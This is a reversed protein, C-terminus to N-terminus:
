CRMTCQEPRRSTVPKFSVDQPALTLASAALIGGTGHKDFAFQFGSLFEAQRQWMGRQESEMMLKRRTASRLGAVFGRSIADDWLSFATPWQSSRLCASVLSYYTIENLEVGNADADKVVDLARSWHSAKEFASILASFSVVDPQVQSSSMETLLALALPWRTECASIATNYSTRNPQLGVDQLAELLQIAAQWQLSRECASLAANFGVVDATQALSWEALLNIARQWQSGEALASITANCCMLDAEIQLSQELAALAQTWRQAKAFASISSTYAISDPFCRRSQMTDLLQLVFPWRHSREAAGMAATYSITDPSIHDAEMFAFIDLVQEWCSKASALTSNFGILDRQVQHEAMEELMQLAMSWHAAKAFANICNNFSSTSPQLADRQIFQMIQVAERWHHQKSCASMAANYGLLSPELRKLPLTSSLLHFPAQWHKAHQCAVLLKSVEEPSADRDLNRLSELVELIEAKPAM